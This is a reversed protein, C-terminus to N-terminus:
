SDRDRLDVSLTTREAEHEPSAPRDDDPQRWTRWWAIATVTVVFALAVLEVVSHSDM